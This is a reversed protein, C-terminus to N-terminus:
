FQIETNNKKLKKNELNIKNNKLSFFPKNENPKKIM